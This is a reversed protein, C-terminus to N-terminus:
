QHRNTLYIAGGTVSLLIGALLMLSSLRAPESRATDLQQRLDDYEKQARKLEPSPASGKSSGTQDGYRHALEHLKASVEQYQHAQNDNWLIRHLPLSPWILSMAIAAIGILLALLAGRERHSGLGIQETAPM